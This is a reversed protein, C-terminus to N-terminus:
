IHFPDQHLLRFIRLARHRRAPQSSLTALNSSPSQQLDGVASDKTLRAVAAVASVTARRSRHYDPPPFLSRALSHKKINTGAALCVTPLRSRQGGWSVFNVLVLLYRAQLQPVTNPTGHVRSPSNHLSRIKIAYVNKSCRLTVRWRKWCCASMNMTVRLYQGKNRGSTGIVEKDAQRRWLLSM